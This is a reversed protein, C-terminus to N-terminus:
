KCHVSYSTVFKISQEPELIILGMGNNFADPVSSLNEIAISKRHDPTFIQLYPYNEEAHISVNYFPGHITCVKNTDSLIFCDDLQKDKLPLLGNYPSADIFHGTPILQENMKIKGVAEMEIFCEDAATHMNFYPHWGDALPMAHESKNTIATQISLKNGISLTYSVAIDYKFPFGEDGPWYYEMTVCAMKETAQQAAVSFLADYILGHMAHTGSFCRGTKYVEDQFEFSGNSLRCVFPSLKTSKFWSNNIVAKLDELGDICDYVHGKDNKFIFKNLLAGTSFIEVITGAINDKLYIINPDSIEITFSM